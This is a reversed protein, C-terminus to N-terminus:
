FRWALEMLALNEDDFGTQNQHGELNLLWNENIRWSVGLTYQESNILGLPSEPRIHWDIDFNLEEYRVLLSVDPMVFYKLQLYYGDIDREILTNSSLGSNSAEINQRSYEATVEFDRHQYQIGYTNNVLDLSSNGNYTLQEGTMTNFVLNGDLKAEIQTRSYTLLWQANQYRLAFYQAGDEQWRSSAEAAYLNAIFDDGLNPKGIALEARLDGSGIYFNSALRVGDIHAYVDRFDETYVSNPLIVSPRTFPVDRTHNYIGGGSKVRGLSITQEGVGLLKNRWDISAYDLKSESGHSLDSFDRYIGQANFELGLPLNASVTLGAETLSHWDREREESKDDFSKFSAAGVAIFGTTYINDSIQNSYANSSSLLAFAVVSKSFRSYM